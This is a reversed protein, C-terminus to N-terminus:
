EKCPRRDEIEILQEVVVQLTTHEIEFREALEHELAHRVEEPDHAPDTRVHAALAPFGSTVTWVHLDHVERVGPVAVMATGIEEVDLGPPAAEMLVDIPESILRWSGALILGGLFLGTIPDVRDWGTIMVLAGSIVVALSGLADAASHRLVAELNIDERDGGALTVTAVANGALGVAGIVLVGLGRVNSPQSLRMVAEIFVFVAVAVLALGNALAALIETRYYGFTRRGRAPRAAMAAAFLALGIAGVDSLVHGADAFLAVSHFVIAGVVAAVVLGLNIAFAVVMRSRNAERGHARAHGLHGHAHAHFHNM